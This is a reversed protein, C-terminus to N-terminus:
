TRTGRYNAAADRLADALARRQRDTLDGLRKNPRVIGARQLLRGIQDDGVWRIAALLRYLPLVREHEDPNDIIAAAHERGARPNLPRIQNLTAAMRIRRENAVALAALPQPNTPASM